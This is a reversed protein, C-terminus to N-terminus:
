KQIWNWLIEFFGKNAKLFSHFKDNFKSIPENQEAELYQAAQFFDLETPVKNKYEDALYFKQAQGKKIFSVLHSENEFSVRASRSKKPLKIIKAFLQPNEKAINKIIQRYEDEKISDNEEENYQNETFQSYAM